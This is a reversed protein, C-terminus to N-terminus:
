CGASPPLAVRAQAGSAIPQSSVGVLMALAWAGGSVRARRWRAGAAAIM